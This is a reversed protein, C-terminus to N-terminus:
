QPFTPTTMKHPTWQMHISGCSPCDLDGIGSYEPGGTETDNAPLSM